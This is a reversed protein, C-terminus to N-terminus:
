CCGEEILEICTLCPLREHGERDQGEGVKANGNEIIEILYPCNWCEHYVARLIGGELCFGDSDESHVPSTRNPHARRRRM